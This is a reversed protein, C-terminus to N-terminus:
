GTGIGLMARAYSLPYCGIDWLAGGGMAPDARYNDERTYQYTFSGRILKVKGLVGDDVMKKVKLTQPHHRYMFAEAVIRGTEKAVREMLDVEEVTVIRVAERMFTNALGCIGQHDM